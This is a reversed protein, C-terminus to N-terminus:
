VLANMSFSSLWKPHPPTNCLPNWCIFHVLNSPERLYRGFLFSKSEIGKIKITYYTKENSQENKDSSRGGLKEM